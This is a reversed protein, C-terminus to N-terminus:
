EDLVLRATSRELRELRGHGVGKVRGVDEIRGFPRAKIIRAALRPGIEDLSALEEATARNVDVPVDLLAQREPRMRGIRRGDKFRDGTRCPGDRVQACRVGEGEIEIMECPTEHSREPLEAGLHPPGRLSRGVYAGAVLLLSVFVLRLGDISM